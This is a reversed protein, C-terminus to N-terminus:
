EVEPSVLEVGNPKGPPRRDIRERVPPTPDSENAKDDTAYARVDVDFEEGRNAPVQCVTSISGGGTPASASVRVCEVEGEGKDYTVHTDRLDILPTPVCAADIPNCHNVMPEGYDVRLNNSTGAQTVTLATAESLGMTVWVFLAFVAMVAVSRLYSKM